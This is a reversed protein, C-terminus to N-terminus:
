AAMAAMRAMRERERKEINAERTRELRELDMKKREEMANREAEKQQIVLKRESAKQEMASEMKRHSERVDKMHNLLRQKRKEEIDAQRDLRLREFKGRRAQEEMEARMKAEVADLVKDTDTEKDEGKKGKKGDAKDKNKGKKKVKKPISRKELYAETSSQVAEAAQVREQQRKLQAEFIPQRTEHLIRIYEQNRENRMKALRQREAKIDLVNRLWTNNKRKIRDDRGNWMTQRRNQIDDAKKREQKKTQRAEEDDAAKRARAEAIAKARENDRMKWRARLQKYEEADQEETREEKVEVNKRRQRQKEKENKDAEINKKETDEKMQVRRQREAALKEDQEAKLRKDEEKLWFLHKLFQARSAAKRKAINESRKIDLMDMQERLKQREKLDMRGTPIKRITEYIPLQPVEETPEPNLKLKHDKGVTHIALREAVWHFRGEKRNPNMLEANFRFLGDFDAYNYQIHFQDQTELGYTEFTVVRNKTNDYVNILFSERNFVKSEQYVLPGKDQEDYSETETTM